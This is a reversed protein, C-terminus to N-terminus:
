SWWAWIDGLEQWFPRRRDYHGFRSFLILCAIGLTLAIVARTSGYDTQWGLLAEEFTLGNVVWNTTRGIAFCVYIILLDLGALLWTEKLRRRPKTKIEASHAAALDM